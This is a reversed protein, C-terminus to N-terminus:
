ATRGNVPGQCRDVQQRHSCKSCEGGDGFSSQFINVPESITTSAAYMMIPDLVLVTILDINLKALERGAGGGGM